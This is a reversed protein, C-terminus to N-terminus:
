KAHAKRWEAIAAVKGACARYATRTKQDDTLIDGTTAFAVSALEPCARVL